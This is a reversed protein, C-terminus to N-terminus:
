ITTKQLYYHFCHEDCHLETDIELGEVVCSRFSTANDAHQSRYSLLMAIPTVKKKKANRVCLQAPFDVYSRVVARPLPCPLTLCLSLYTSILFLSFNHTFSSWSYGKLFSVLVEWVLFSGGSASASTLSLLPPSILSTEEIALLWCCM